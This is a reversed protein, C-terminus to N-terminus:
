RQREAERIHDLLATRAAYQPVSSDTLALLDVALDKALSLDGKMLSVKALRQQVSLTRDNTHGYVERFLPLAELFLRQAEDWRQQHAIANALNNLAILTEKDKPGVLRTLTDFREKALREAQEFQRDQECAAGLNGMTQLTSQHEDGLVVRMRRLVDEYTVVADHARGMRLHVNALGGLTTLTESANEGMIARMRPALETFVLLAEDWKRQRSYLDGLNHRLILVAPNDDDHLARAIEDATRLSTEAEKLNEATAYAAGLTTYAKLAELTDGYQSRAWRACAIQNPIASEFRRLRLQAEALFSLSEMTEPADGGFSKARGNFAETLLTEAEAYRGQEVRLEGMDHMCGLLAGLDADPQARLVDMAMTYLREAADFQSLDLFSRGLVSALRSKVAPALDTTRELERAHQDLVDKVLVDKGRTHDPRPADFLKLLFTSLNEFAARERQATELAEREKAYRWLTTSLGVALAVITASVGAVLLKNRAVFKRARVTWRTPRAAITEGSLHRELDNGLESANAYRLAPDTSLATAVITELDGALRRDLAGLRPSEGNQIADALGPLTQPFPLRRAFLEYAIVGISWVDSRTTIERVRGSMQEPSSYAYTGVFEQSHTLAASDHSVLRAIGFDLVKPEGNAGVFLNAPKLDRHIIGREHAHGVARCVRVLLEVRTRLDLQEAYRTIPQGDVLEMAFFFRLGHETSEVGAEFIRAIGSHELAGLVEVELRFRDVQRSDVLWPYLVKLAVRRAPSEQRAEYVISSAGRGLARIPEYRGIKVPMPLEDLDCALAVVARQVIETLSLGTERRGALLTEVLDRLKENGGCERDLFEQAESESLSKAARCLRQANEYTQANM